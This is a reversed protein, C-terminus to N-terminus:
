ICINRVAPIAIAFKTFNSMSAHVRFVQSVGRNCLAALKSRNLGYRSSFIDFDVEVTATRSFQSSLRAVTTSKKM